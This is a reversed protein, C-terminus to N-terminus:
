LQLNHIGITLWVVCDLLAPDSYWPSNLAQFYTKIWGFPSEVRARVSRIAKNRTQQEKTLQKLDKLDEGRKRKSPKKIPVLFTVNKLYTRGCDFYQDAIIKAGALNEEIWDRQIELFHGDYIKSSYGGWLKRIQHRTDIFVM